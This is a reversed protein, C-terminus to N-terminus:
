LTPETVPIYDTISGTGSDPAVTLVSSEQLLHKRSWGRGCGWYTLQPPNHEATVYGIPGRAGRPLGGLINLAGMNAVVSETTVGNAFDAAGRNNDNSTATLAVKNIPWFRNSSINGADDQSWYRSDYTEIVRLGLVNQALNQMQETNQITLNVFSVNPALFLRASNQFETCQIMERFASLPMSLRDFDIGYRVRGVEKATLIDTVPKGNTHDTWPNSVTIKLDSPMGWTVNDMRIGLRNYSFGDLIRAVCIAEMRQRVGLLCADLIGSEMDGVINDPDEAIGGNATVAEFTKLEEQTLLRGIKLNPIGSTELRFKGASYVAAKQDDAILDAILVRGRFRAMIEGDVAPVIPTRGLWVLDQPLNRVDDLARMMRTVRVGNFMQLNPAM